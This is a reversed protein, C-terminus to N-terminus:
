DLGIRARQNQRERAFRLKRQEDTEAACEQAYSIKNKNRGDDNILWRLFGAGLNKPKKDQELLYLQYKNKEEAINLKNRQALETHHQTIEFELFESLSNEQKESEREKKSSSSSSSSSPSPSLSPSLTDKDGDKHTDKKPPVNPHESSKCGADGRRKRIFEDRVMRSSFWVPGKQGPMLEVTEPSGQRKTMTTYLPPSLTDKDGDKDAGKLVGKRVLSHLTSINCRIACAIDELSWRLIGYEDSDHLLCMVELWVGKEEFSCRKLNTNSLWDGPYFQFSPRKSSM